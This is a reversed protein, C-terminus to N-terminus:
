FSGRRRRRRTTKSQRKGNTREEIEDPTSRQYGRLRGFVVRFAGRPATERAGEAREGSNDRRRRGTGRRRRRHARLPERQM